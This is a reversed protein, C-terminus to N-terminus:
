REDLAANKRVSDIGNLAGEKSRYRESTLITEGKGAKLNFM